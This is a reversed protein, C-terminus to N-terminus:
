ARIQTIPHQSPVFLVRIEEGAALVPLFLTGGVVWSWVIREFRTPLKM